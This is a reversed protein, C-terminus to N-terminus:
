VHTLILEPPHIENDGLLLIFQNYILHSIKRVLDEISQTRRSLWAFLPNEGDM